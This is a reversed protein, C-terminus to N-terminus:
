SPFIKDVAVGDRFVGPTLRVNQTADQWELFFAIEKGNHVSRVSIVKASPEPWVPRTIIQGSLPSPIPTVTEWGKDSPFVPLDGEIFHSRIMIGQSSVVPINFWVLVVAGLFVGLLSM